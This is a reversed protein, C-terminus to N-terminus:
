NTKSLQAKYNEATMRQRNSKAHREWVKNQAGLESRTEKRQIPLLTINLNKNQNKNKNAIKPCYNFCYLWVPVYYSILYIIMLLRRTRYFPRPKASDQESCLIGAGSFSRAQFGPRNRLKCTVWVCVTQKLKWSQNIVPFAAQM